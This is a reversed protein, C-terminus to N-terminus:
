KNLSSTVTFGLTTYGALGNDTLGQLVVIYKGTIDSTYFSINQKGNKTQVEPSWYLVNRYDPLRSQQQQATEYQPSYFEREYQLGEYEVVLSNPDLQYGTLDGNYPAYSVIGSYQQNGRYFNTATIDVKQIKLPDMDIIKTVDFVPVGDLLTLPQGNFYSIDPENFVEYYFSKGRKKVFQWYSILFLHFDM